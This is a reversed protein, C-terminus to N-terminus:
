ARTLMLWVSAADLPPERRTSRGLVRPARTGADTGELVHTRKHLPHNESAARLGHQEVDVAFALM